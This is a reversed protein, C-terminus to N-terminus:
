NSLAKKVLDLNEIAEMMFQTTDLKDSLLKERKSKFELDLHPKQLLEIAKEIAREQDVPSETYNYVLGYEHEEEDTYGLGNDNLFIAPTGLVAAESTMTGSEGFLMSSYYLADHIRHLPIRIQFPKLKEPLEKESSIFVKVLKSMELVAKTKNELSIGAHGFDHAAAWSVFRVIVYREGPSIGLIQFIDPNPTYYNPHLYSLEMFSNFRVQKEGLDIRYCSPTFIKTAFPVTLKHHLAAHESDSFVLSTKGLLKAVQSPYPHLFNLFVDPKFRLAITLLKLDAYVLYVFKGIKGEKGKGRNIFPINYYELLQHEIEKNRSVVLIQHGKETMIEYFNRFYHVHAPHNIDILIKM